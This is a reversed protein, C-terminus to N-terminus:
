CSACTVGRERASIVNFHDADLFTNVSWALPPVLGRAERQRPTSCGPLEDPEYGSPRLNLDQGRLEEIRLGRGGVARLFPNETDPVLQAGRHRPLAPRRSEGEPVLVFPRLCRALAERGRAPNKSLLGLLDWLQKRIIEDSPLPAQQRQQGAAALQANLTALRAEEAKLKTALADTWGVKAIGETQNRVRRDADRVQRELTTVKGDTNQARLQAMRKRVAETFQSLHEPTTVLRQVAGLLGAVLKRESITLKNSCIVEGRSKNANCGLQAYRVGAKVKQGVVGMGAGCAGCRLLGSFLHTFRGTSVPRGKGPKPGRRVRNQVADWLDKSLIALEPVEHVVHEHAPRAVRRRSKQGPRRVWKFQNWVWRGLYRENRLINRISTHPWGHGNRKAGHGGDYPAPVGEQNLVAAISKTSEGDAFLKFVRRVVEAEQEDIVPRARPHEPDQPNEEPM